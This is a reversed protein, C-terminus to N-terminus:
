QESISFGFFEEESFFVYEDILEKDLDTLVCSVVSKDISAYMVRLLDKYLSVL